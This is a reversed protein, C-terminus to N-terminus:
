SPTQVSIMRTCLQRALLSGVHCLHVLWSALDPMCCNVLDMNLTCVGYKCICM